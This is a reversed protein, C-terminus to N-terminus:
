SIEVTHFSFLVCRVDAVPGGWPRATSSLGMEGSMGASAINPCIRTDGSAFVFNMRGNSEPACVMM